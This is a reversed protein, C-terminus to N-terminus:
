IYRWKVEWAIIINKLYKPSLYTYLVMRWIYSQDIRDEEETEIVEVAPEEDVPETPAPPLEIKEEEAPEAPTGEDEVVTTLETKGGCATLFLSVMMLVTIILAIKKM